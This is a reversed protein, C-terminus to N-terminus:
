SVVPVRACGVGATTTGAYPACPLSTCYNTQKGEKGVRMGWVSPAFLYTSCDLLLRAAYYRQAPLHIRAHVANIPRWPSCYRKCAAAWRPTSSSGAPRKKKCAREVKGWREPARGGVAFDEIQFKRGPARRCM